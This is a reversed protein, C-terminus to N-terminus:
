QSHSPDSSFEFSTVPSHSAGIKCVDPKKGQRKKPEEVPVPKRLSSTNTAEEEQSPLDCVGPGGIPVTHGNKLAPPNLKEPEEGDALPHSSLSAFVFCESPLPTSLHSLQSLWWPAVGAEKQSRFCSDETVEQM